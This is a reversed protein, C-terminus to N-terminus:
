ETTLVTFNLKLLLLKIEKNFKNNFMNIKKKNLKKPVYWNNFLRTENLLINDEYKKIKYFKNRFNKIKKDKVLQIKNLINIAKKLIM